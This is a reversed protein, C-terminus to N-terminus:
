FGKAYGVSQKHGHQFTPSDTTSTIPVIPTIQPPLSTFSDSVQTSTIGHDATKTNDVGMIVNTGMDSINVTIVSTRAEVSVTKALSVEPPQTMLADAKSSDLILTAEPTEPIVETDDATSDSSIILKRRKKQSIHKAMDAAMRKKTSPSVTALLERFIVGQHSVQPKLVVKTGSSRKKNKSKM